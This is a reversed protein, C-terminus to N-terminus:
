ATRNGIACYAEPVAGKKIIVYYLFLETLVTQMEVRTERVLSDFRAILVIIHKLEDTSYNKNAVIYNSQNRKGRIGVKTCAEQPAYQLDTLGSLSLLRKFQWLLGAFLQIPNGEGSLLLKRLTEIAGSFDCEGIKAFLTFVNEEKSHFIFADVDEEDICSGPGFHLALQDCAIKMERTNNEVLELILDLAEPSVEIQQRGFYNALWSRKQNEFLEWFMKKHEKPVASAIAKAIDREMGNSVMILTADASPNKLYEGLLAADDRKVAEVNQLIVVKKSSFLSGNRLVGVISSIETEYPYFRTSEYGPDEAAIRKKIEAIFSAKEGEEPGLLLFAPPISGKKAAM